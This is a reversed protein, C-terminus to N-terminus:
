GEVPRVPAVSLLGCGFAKGPGIGKCLAERFRGSDTVELVGSALVTALTLPHGAKSGQSRAWNALIVSEASEGSSLRASCLRFGSAEAKRRLWAVQDEERALEVRKGVATPAE